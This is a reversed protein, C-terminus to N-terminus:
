QAIAASRQPYGGPSVALKNMFGFGITHHGSDVKDEIESPTLNILLTEQLREQEYNLAWIQAAQQPRQVVHAVPPLSDPLEGEPAYPPLPTPPILTPAPTPPVTTPPPTETPTPTRTPAPRRTPLWPYEEVTAAPLPTPTAPGSTSTVPGSTPAQSCGTIALLVLLVAAPWPRQKGQM